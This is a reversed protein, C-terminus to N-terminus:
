QQGPPLVDVPVDLTDGFMPHTQTLFFDTRGLHSVGSEIKNAEMTYRVTDPAALVDPITCESTKSDTGVTPCSKGLVPQNSGQPFLVTCTTGESVAASTSSVVCRVDRVSDAVASWTSPAFALAGKSCELLGRDDTPQSPACIGGACRAPVSVAAFGVPGECIEVYLGQGAIPDNDDYPEGMGDVDVTYNNRVCGPSADPCQGVPTFTNERMAVFVETVGAELSDIEVGFEGSPLIISDGQAVSAAVIWGGATEATPDTPPVTPVALNNVSPVVCDVDGTQPLDTDALNCTEQAFTVVAAPDVSAGGSLPCADLDQTGFPNPNPLCVAYDNYLAV